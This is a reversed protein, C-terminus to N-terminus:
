LNVPDLQSVGDIWLIKIEINKKKLFNDQTKKKLM